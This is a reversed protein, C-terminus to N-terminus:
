VTTDSIDNEETVTLIVDEAEGEEEHLTAYSLPLFTEDLPDQRQLCHARQHPCTHVYPPEPSSTWSIPHSSSGHNIDPPTPSIRLEPTAREESGRSSSGMSTLWAAANTPSRRPIDNGLRRQASSSSSDLSRGRNCVQFINM